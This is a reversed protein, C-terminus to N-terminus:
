GGQDSDGQDSLPSLPDPTYSVIETRRLNTGRFCEWYSSGATEHDELRTTYVIQALLNDIDADSVDNGGRLRRLSSRAEEYKGRRVSNWPSEPAMFAVLFLPLPWIWQCM